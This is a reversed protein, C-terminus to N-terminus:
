ETVDSSGGPTSEPGNGSEDLTKPANKAGAGSPGSDGDLASEPGETFHGIERLNALYDRLGGTSQSRFHELM